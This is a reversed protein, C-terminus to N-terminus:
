LTLPIIEGSTYSKNIRWGAWFLAGVLGALALPFLFPLISVFAVTVTASAIGLSLLFTPGCCAVGTLLAPVASLVSQSPNIRCMKRATYTYASVSINAGVLAATIIGFVINPIALFITIVGLSLFGIPEWNFPTRERFILSPWSDSVFLNFNSQSSFTIISTVVLYFLLYAIAVISLIAKSRRSALANRVEQLSGRVTMEINNKSEEGSM